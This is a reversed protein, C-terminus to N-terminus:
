DFDHFGGESDSRERPDYRPLTRTDPLRWSASLIVLMFVAFDSPSVIGSDNRSRASSIISNSFRSCHSHRRKASLPLENRHLLETARPRLASMIALLNGSEM